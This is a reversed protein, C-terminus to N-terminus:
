QFLSIFIFLGIFIDTSQHLHLFGLCPSPFDTTKRLPIRSSRCSSTMRSCLNSSLFSLTLCAPFLSVLGPAPLAFARPCCCTSQEGPDARPSTHQVHFSALFCYLHLCPPPSCGPRTHHTPTLPKRKGSHSSPYQAPSHWSTLQTEWSEGRRNRWLGCSLFRLLCPDSSTIAQVTTTLTALLPQTRLM